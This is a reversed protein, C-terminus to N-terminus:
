KQYSSSWAGYGGNLNYLKEFGKGAMVGCAKSSRNGSRCYLLYTKSKDLSDIRASFNSSMFDIEVANKIKGAKIEGPTRVDLVVTSSDKQLDKFEPVNINKFGGSSQSRAKFAFFLVILVTLAIAIKM